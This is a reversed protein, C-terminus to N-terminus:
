FCLQKGQYTSVLFVNFEDKTTTPASIAKNKPYGALWRDLLVNRSLFMIKMM